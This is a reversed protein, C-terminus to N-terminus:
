HPPSLRFSLPFHSPFLLPNSLSFLSLLWRYITPFKRPNTGQAADFSVVGGFKASFVKVFLWLVAFNM